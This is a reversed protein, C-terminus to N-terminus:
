GREEQWRERHHRRTARQSRRESSPYDAVNMDTLTMDAEDLVRYLSPDSLRFDEGDFSSGTRWM